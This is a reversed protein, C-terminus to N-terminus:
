MFAITMQFTKFQIETIKTRYNKKLDRVSDALINWFWWQYGIAPGIVMAAGFDNPGVVVKLM